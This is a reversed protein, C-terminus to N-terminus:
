LTSLFSALYAACEEQTAHPGTHLMWRLQADMVKGINPGKKLGLTQMMQNGDLLPKLDWCGDLGLSLIHAELAQYGEIITLAAPSISVDFLINSWRHVGDGGGGGSSSSSTSSSIHAQWQLYLPYGSVAALEDACAIWLAERWLGKVTRLVLGTEERSIAAGGGTVM